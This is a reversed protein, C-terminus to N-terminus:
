KIKIRLRKHPFVSKLLQTYYEYLQDPNGSVNSELICELVCGECIWFRLIQTDIEYTVETSNKILDSEAQFVQQYTRLKAKM